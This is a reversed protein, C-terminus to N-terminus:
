LARRAEDFKLRLLWDATRWRLGRGWAAFALMAVAGYYLPAQHEMRVAAVAFPALTGAAYMIVAIYKRPLTERALQELNDYLIVFQRTVQDYLSGITSRDGMTVWDITIPHGHATDFELAGLAVAMKQGDEFVLFFKQMSRVSSTVSVTPANVHGGM